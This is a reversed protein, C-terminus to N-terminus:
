SPRHAILHNVATTIMDKSPVRKEKYTFCTFAVVGVVAFILLGFGIGAGLATILGLSIAIAATKLVTRNAQKRNMMQYNQYCTGDLFATAYKRIAEM